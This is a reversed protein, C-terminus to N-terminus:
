VDSELVILSLDAVRLFEKKIEMLLAHRNSRLDEDPCNVLVADFFADIAKGFVILHQLALHYDKVSLVTDIEQHLRQLSNHIEKEAPEQLLQEQLGSFVKTEAIINAVRKFGIVLKIFDTESKLRNLARARKELDNIHSKDIHMVSEIVDYAIDQQKLLWVVRQDLFAHINERAQPTTINNQMVTVLAADAIRFLDIDWARQNIIQVIGNAARRLAFPDGSGTPMMGISIIGAVTDMKDAVAVVSGCLTTPLMDASGRPMYHEYIGEAIDADEGTALAYQKGIYGQLKTFEKEGLMTTVLDAKCLTACRQVKVAEEASLRLEDAIGACLTKVRETKEAMTGLKSQFVVDKLRPVFSDLPHKTDETYYWLADALRANVVKENGKRILDSYSPDGNSIFVFKNALKMDSDTVSFYKQNQSITSIIIKEPLILYKAEFEGVVAYPSEVLNTVTDVLRLDEVVHYSGSPFIGALQETLVQKRDEINALVKHTKLASLYHGAEHVPIETDMGLYRNAFSIRKSSIGGIQLDLLESNWLALIWRLPRSFSFTADNWIMKKTFPIQSVLETIWPKLLEPTTKGRQLFKVALFKGRENELVFSDSESGGSKKLFGLGAPGLKGEATYAIGVAPGLKQVEVDAQKDDMAESLIFIRRPTGSVQYTDCSLNNDGLFKGFAERVTEIAIDLQKEPLEECGLELLFPRKEM